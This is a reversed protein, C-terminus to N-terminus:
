RVVTISTQGVGTWGAKDIATVPLMKEGYSETTAAFRLTYEGDGKKADGYTGDDRMEADPPGGLDSIDAKVALISDIGERDNVLARLTVIPNEDFISFSTPEAAVSVVKPATNIRCLTDSSYGKKFDFLWKDLWKIRGFRSLLIACEARTIPRNPQFIPMKKSIGKILGMEKSRKIDVYYPNNEAVDYFLGSMEDLIKGGEAHYAIRAAEGRTITEDIGFINSALPKMYGKAYAAKIYPARWHEKPVDFFVDQYEPPVFIGKAKVLWTAFEGRTVPQTLYFEGDPYGEIVQLSALTLIEHRAWHKRDDYTIEADPFSVLRLVRLASGAFKGAGDWAKVQIFNKGPSLLLGCSFTQDPKIDIPVDNVTISRLETGSGSLTLLDQNTM